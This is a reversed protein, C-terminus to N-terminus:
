AAALGAVVFIPTIVATFALACGVIRAFRANDKAGFAQALRQYLVTAVGLDLLGLLGVINASALFSGYTSLSFYRFYLPVLVIGKVFSLTLGAYSMVLSVVAAQRRGGTPRKLQEEQGPTTVTM